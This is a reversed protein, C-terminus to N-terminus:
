KARHPGLITGALAAGTMAVGMIEKRHQYLKRYRWMLRRYKWALKLKRVTMNADRM